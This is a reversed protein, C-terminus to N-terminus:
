SSVGTRPAPRPAPVRNSRASNASGPPPLANPRFDLEDILYLVVSLARAQSLEWNSAYEGGPRIAANDTHGDVRLVWDITDPIESAADLLLRGISAIQARGQRSLDASGADFLVESQFVFRDGVIQVGDRGGLIERM